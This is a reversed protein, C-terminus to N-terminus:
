SNMLGTLFEWASRSIWLMGTLCVIVPVEWHSDWVSVHCRHRPRGDALRWWGQFRIFEVNVNDATHSSATPKVPAVGPVHCRTAVRPMEGAKASVRPTKWHRWPKAVEFDADSHWRLWTSTNHIKCLWVWTIAMNYVMDYSEIHSRHVPVMSGCNMDIWWIPLFEYWNEGLIRLFEFFNSSIRSRRHDTSCNPGRPDQTPQYDRARWPEGLDGVQHRKPSGAGRCRQAERFCSVISDRCSSIM